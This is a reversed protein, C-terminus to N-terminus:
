NIGFLMEQCLCFRKLRWCSVFWLSEFNLWPFVNEWWVRIFNSGANLKHLTSKVQWVPFSIDVWYRSQFPEDNWIIHWLKRTNYDHRSNEWSSTFSFCKMNNDTDSFRLHSFCLSFTFLYPFIVSLLNVQPRFNDSYCVHVHTEVGTVWLCLM